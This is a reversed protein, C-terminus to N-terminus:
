KPAMESKETKRSFTMSKLKVIEALPVVKVESKARIADLWARMKVTEYEDVVYDRVEPKSWDQGSRAENVKECRIVHWGFQSKIPASIEGPKLAYAAKQFAPDLGGGWKKIPTTMLGKANKTSTDESYNEALWGFDVGERAKMSVSEAGEKAKTQVEAAFDLGSALDRTAFLIHSVNVNRGNFYDLNSQLFAEVDEDKIVAQSCKKWGVIRRMREREADMSTGKMKLITPWDFPPPYRQMQKQVWGEIESEDVVANAKKLEQAVIVSQILDEAATTLAGPKVLGMLFDISQDATVNITPGKGDKQTIQAVLGPAPAPETGRRRVEYDAIAQRMFISRIMPNGQETRKEEPINQKKWVIKDWGRAMRAQRNIEFESFVGDRILDDVKRGPSIRAVIADRETAIEADDIAIGNKVLELELVNALVLNEMAQQLNANLLFELLRAQTVVENNVTAVTATPLANAYVFPPPATPRTTPAAARTDAGGQGTASIALTLLALLSQIKRLKM